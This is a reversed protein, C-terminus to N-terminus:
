ALAGIVAQTFEHTSAKGGLDGTRVKGDAYVKLVAQEVRHGQEMHGAHKLMMVASM